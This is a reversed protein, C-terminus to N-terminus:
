GVFEMQPFSHGWGFNVRGPHSPTFPIKRKQIRLNILVVSSVTLYQDKPFVGFISGETMRLPAFFGMGFQCLHKEREVYCNLYQM